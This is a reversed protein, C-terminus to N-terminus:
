SANSYKISASPPVLLNESDEIAPAFFTANESDAFYELRGSSDVVNM